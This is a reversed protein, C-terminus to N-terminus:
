TNGNGLKRFARLTEREKQDRELRKMNKYSEYAGGLSWLVLIVMVTQFVVYATMGNVYDNSILYAILAFFGVLPAAIATGVAIRKLQLIVNDKTVNQLISIM